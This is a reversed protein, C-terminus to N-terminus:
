LGFAPTGLSGNVGGVTVKRVGGSPEVRTQGFVATTLAVKLLLMFGAVILVEVNVNVEPPALTAPCTV